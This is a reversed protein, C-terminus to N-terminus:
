RQAKWQIDLSRVSARGGYTLFWEITIDKVRLGDEAAEEFVAILRERLEHQTM